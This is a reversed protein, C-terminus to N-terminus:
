RGLGGDDDAGTDRPDSPETGPEPVLLEDGFRQKAAAWATEAALKLEQAQARREAAEDGLRDQQRPEPMPLVLASVDRPTLRPHTNGGAMQRTQTLVLTSRLVTELYEGRVWPKPRLVLFEPSCVGPRGAWHVKNLYPRLKSFLVDGKAFRLCGGEPLEEETARVLEGTDREVNALGVYFDEGTPAPAHEVIRDALEDLPQVPTAGAEIARVMRVREPHFFEANIRDEIQLSAARAAYVISETPAPLEIGLECALEADGEALLERVRVLAAQQAKWKEDLNAVMSEQVSIPPHPVRLERIEESNINTMLAQRSLRDIQVRGINSNLFRALFEPVYENRNLLQVRILYSAFIWAGDEHFVACKGVLDKSGNTRTFLLDGRELLFQSYAPEDLTTYKLDGMDWDGDQINAMRLMPPGVEEVKGRSSSGYQVLSVLEGLRVMPYAARGLLDAVMPAMRAYNVDARVGLDYRRVAFGRAARPPALATM